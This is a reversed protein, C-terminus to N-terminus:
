LNVIHGRLEPKGNKIDTWVIYIKNNLLQMRPFGTARGSGVIEPLAFRQKEAKLDHSYQALWVTQRANEEVLWSVWVSNKDSLVDVRGHVNKSAVERM